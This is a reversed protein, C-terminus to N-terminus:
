FKWGLRFGGSVGERKGVYGQLGVEASFRDNDRAHFIMGVEGVGSSGKASPADFSDNDDNKAHTRHSFEYEYALGVYWARDPNRAHTYRTGLRLRQSDDAKFHVGEGTALTISRGNQRVWYYRALFDLSDRENMRWEHGVGLHAGFYPVTLKYKAALGSSTLDDTHFKNEVRGGRLSGEIRFGSDWHQRAMLGLGYFKLDGDGKIRQRHLGYAGRIDYDAIGAEIFAGYLFSSDSKEDKGALGVLAMNGRYKVRAGTDLHIRSGDLGGFVARNEGRRLALDAQQYSHDALWDASQGLLGLSASRGEILSTVEHAPVVGRTLRAVLYRNVDASNPNLTDDSADKDIIFYYGRTFGQRAYALNNAPDGNLKGTVNTDILYFLDGPNLTPGAAFNSLSITAGSIDAPTGGPTIIDLLVASADNLTTGDLNFHLTGYLNAQQVDLRNSGMVHVRGGSLLTFNHDTAALSMGSLLTARSGSFFNVAGTVGQVFKNEGGWLFDGGTGQVFMNFTKGNNQETEIPDYLAVTGGTSPAIYLEADADAADNAVTIVGMTDDTTMNQVIGFYLSNARAGNADTLMNNRFVTNNGSSAFLTLTHADGGNLAMGTDVTVTGYVRAAASDGSYSSCGACTASFTNDIFASDRIYMGGALGYSYVAGGMIQGDQAIVTNNRFVSKDIGGIGIVQSPNPVSTVDGTVGILGGGDIYTGAMINAGEFLSNRILEIYAIGGTSRVGLVGGGSIYRNTTVVPNIFANNELGSLLMANGGAGQANFGIIGGGKISRAGVQMAEFRNGSFALAGVVGNVTSAGVIGGGSLNGVVSVNLDRFFNDKLSGFTADTSAVGNASVGIIGGGSLHSGTTVTID